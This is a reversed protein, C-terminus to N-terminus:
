IQMDVADGDGIVEGIVVGSLPYEEERLRKSRSRGRRNESSGRKLYRM